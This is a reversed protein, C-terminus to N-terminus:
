RGHWITEQALGTIAHAAALGHVNTGQHIANQTPSYELINPLNSDRALLRNTSIWAGPLGVPPGAYIEQVYAPHLYSFQVASASETLSVGAAICMIVLFLRAFAFSNQSARDFNM